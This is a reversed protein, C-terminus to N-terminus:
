INMIEDALRSDSHWHGAGKIGGSFRM